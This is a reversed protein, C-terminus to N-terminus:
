VNLLLLHLLLLIPLEVLLLNLLRLLQRRRLYLLRLLPWHPQWCGNVHIAVDLCAGWLLSPRGVSPLGSSVGLQPRAGSHAPWGAPSCCRRRLLLYSRMRQGWDSRASDAGHGELENRGVRSHACDRGCDLSAERHARHSGPNRYRCWPGGGAGLDDHSNRSTTPPGQLHRGRDSAHRMGACSCRPSCCRAPGYHARGALRMDVHVCSSVHLGM